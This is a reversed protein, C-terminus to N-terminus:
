GTVAPATVVPTVSNGRTVIPPAPVKAEASAVPPPSANGTFTATAVNTVDSTVNPTSCYVSLSAGVALSAGGAPGTCGPALPDSITVGTLAIEGTNTVTVKWYAANGSPIVASSVWPGSGGPGCLSLSDSGCVQKLITIAQAPITVSSPPSTVPPGSPPTGTATATNVISGATLDAQTTLYTATCTESAAPALTPDPCSLGTLGTHPDNITIATLTVNGTNTVLYNYNITQGPASYSTQQASKVLTLAPSQIAPITVSSPPSTVPPGSPPTGTATATNIISGADLDAQTTLYTATCTESAGPALTPDPCSLGTLGTHPDTVTINTLTVNGTNTVLYNYNITQGPASYSSQQASKVLTLAPSQIAPITVSSPPSTV